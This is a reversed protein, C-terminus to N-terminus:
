GKREQTSLWHAIGFVALFMLPNGMIIMVVFAVWFGSCLRCALLWKDGIILFRTKPRLYRRTTDFISGDVILLTVIYTTFSGIVIEQWWM